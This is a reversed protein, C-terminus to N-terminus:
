RNCAQSLLQWDWSANQLSDAADAKASASRLLTRCIVCGGAGASCDDSDKPGWRAMKRQADSTQPHVLLIGRTSDSCALRLDDGFAMMQHPAGEGYQRKEFGTCAACGKSSKAPM